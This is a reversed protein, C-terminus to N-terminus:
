HHHHYHKEHDDDQIECNKYRCENYDIEITSNKINNNKLINRIKEKINEAEIPQVDNKVKVHMTIYAHIGDMTWLHIHHINEINDVTEIEQKIPEIKINEPAKELIINLTEKIHKIVHILIYASICLSLIPDIIYWNTYKIVVSGILVAIWGLVDELMHFSVAKENLSSGKATKIAAVLNILVGLIAFSIMYNYQVEIPNLLRLISNYIVFFSGTLLTVSTIIAGLVSFRLYGFTYKENPEKKSKKELIYSVGISIADGFDHLSDSIISISNCFFGGILEFISFLLNLFFAIFINKSSNHKHEM